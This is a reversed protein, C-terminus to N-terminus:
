HLSGWREGLKGEATTPISLVQPVARLMEQRVTRAIREDVELTTDDHVRVWPECYRKGERLRPVIIDRWIRKNWIKSIRDASAQIAFLAQREADAVIREDSSWLGSLYRRAGFMDKVYGHQKGHSIQAKWFRDVGVYNKFWDARFERVQEIDWQLQGAEHLQDLIGYETMGNIIGFNMTKAPLRHLSEDQNDKGKPAGLLDHATAAHLDEGRAYAGLMKADGSVHAMVRLEIQSLDVSVLLHGDTAHFCNRIQKGRATHKPILLIVTEALRGTATRTYKWDPYYRGDRLMLPLKETYTGRYKSLQRGDLVLQIVEHEKKRAKLYKDQTTHFGSKTPKTPTIGLDDFLLESVREHQNPNVVRGAIKAIKDVIADFEAAFLASLDQLAGGDCAMGVEEMRVLMPLVGLDIAYAQRLGRATILPALADYVRRHAVADLLAYPIRQAEPVDRWTPPAPLPILPANVSASWRKRLSEPM